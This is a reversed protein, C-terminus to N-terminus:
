QGSYTADMTPERDVARGDGIHRPHGAPPEDRRGIMRRLSPGFRRREKVAKAVAIVMYQASNTFSADFGFLELGGDSASQHTFQAQPM